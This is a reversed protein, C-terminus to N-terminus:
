GNLRHLMTNDGNGGTPSRLIDNRLLKEFLANREIDPLKCLKNFIRNRKRKIRERERFTQGIYRYDHLNKPYPYNFWLYETAMSGGRTVAEYRHCNWNRLKDAYLESWYGSIMVMCPLKALVELLRVHDATTYEYSYLKGSKRTEMLYPPDCYVMERGTFFKRKIFTSLFSSADGNIIIPPNSHKQWQICIDKDIEIGINILALRKHRMIAGGGLHSEIYVDHPPMLNIITQYVGSGGKGGPYSGSADNIKDTAKITMKPSEPDMIM